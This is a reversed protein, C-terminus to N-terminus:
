GIELSCGSQDDPLNPVLILDVSGAGLNLTFDTRTRGDGIEAGARGLVGALTERASVDLVGCRLIPSGAQVVRGFASLPGLVPQLLSADPRGPESCCDSQIYVYASWRGAVYAVPTADAWADPGLVSAIDFWHEAFSVLDKVGPGISANTTRTTLLGAPRRVTVVYTSFGGGMGDPAPLIEGLVGARPVAASFAKSAQSLGTRNLRRVVFRASEFGPSRWGPTLVTGDSYVSIDPPVPAAYVDPYSAIRLVLEGAVFTPSALLTPSAVPSPSPSAAQMATPPPAAPRGPTSSTASAAAPTPSASPSPRGACSGALLGVIVLLTAASWRRM